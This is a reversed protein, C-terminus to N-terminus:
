TTRRREALARAAVVGLTAVAGLVLAAPMSRAVARQVERPVYPDDMPREPKAPLGREERFRALTAAVYRDVSAPFDEREIRARHTSKKAGPGWNYAAAAKRKNGGFRELQRALYRVGGDINQALDHPDVGLGRATNPMLQMVGMAGAHSTLTAGKRQQQGRSEIWAVARAFAAPVGYKAAARNIIDAVNGPLLVMM